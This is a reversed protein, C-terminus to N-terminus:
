FELIFRKNEEMFQEENGEIESIPYTRELKRPVQKL